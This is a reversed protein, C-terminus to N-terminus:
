KWRPGVAWGVISKRIGKKIKCVRHQARSDFLIISGRKRPAVYMKGTEDLIQLNGGEYDEPDSLQLVFSLKRVLETQESLYDDAIGGKKNAISSPKYQEPLGADNHWSYFCGEEYKTYQLSEGDICRLDYLFNERNAREIYHWVFGGLWHFTNIWANESNRIRKNLTYSGIQSEEMSEDFKDSIDKDLIDVIEKPLDTFYWISQMAM